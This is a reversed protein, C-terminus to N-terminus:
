FSFYVYAATAAFIEIRRAKTALALCLSFLLTFLCVLGLKVNPNGIFSLVVISALPAVCSLLTGLINTVAEIRKNNYHYLNSQNEGTPPREADIPLPTAKSRWLIHFWRLAPGQVFKTFLDDEGHNNSLIALDNQHMADYASPQEHTGLDLGLFRCCAGSDPDYLWEYLRSRESEKPEPLSAIKSYSSIADYYERLKSRIEMAVPLQEGTCQRKPSSKCHVWHRHHIQREDEQAMDNKVAQKYQRELQSLEAQLFLLDRVALQQYKRLIPHHKETMFNALDVYGTM